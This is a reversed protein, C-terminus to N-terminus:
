MNYMFIVIKIYDKKEINILLLIINRILNYFCNEATLNEILVENKLYKECERKEQKSM